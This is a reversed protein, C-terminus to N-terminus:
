PKVVVKGFSQRSQIYNFADVTEDLSFTKGVLPKLKGAGLLEMLRQIASVIRDMHDPFFSGLYYGIVSRNSELIEVNTLSAAEGGALGYVVLRGFPALADKFSRRFVDGGVSELILDAGRGNTKTRLESVWDNDKYNIAQGGLETIVKCKEDSSATGFVKAGRALAIQVGLTGVGGAAAHILVTEGSQLRGCDDLCHMATIGQILFAAGQEPSLGEPCPILGPTPTVLYEALAGGPVSGIVRQGVSYGAVGEGVQDIVGCFERGLTYPLRMEDIYTGERIMIDSYNLGCAEVRVRVKGASAKPEDAEAVQMVEPGGHNLIQVHKM